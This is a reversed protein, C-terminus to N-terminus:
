FVQEYMKFIYGRMWEPMLHLDEKVQELPINALFTKVRETNEDTIREVGLDKLAFALLMLTRNKFAFNKQSTHSLRISHGNAFMITKAPGDTFFVMNMPVQTSLGLINQAYAGTPVIQVHDREAIRQAVEEYSPYLVGLGYKEDIKPFYYIGAALRQIKESITARELAKHVLSTKLGLHVFDSPFFVAGRGMSEIAAMIKNPVSEM